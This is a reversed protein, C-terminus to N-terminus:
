LWTKLTMVAVRKKWKIRDGPVTVFSARLATMRGQRLQGVSQRSIDLRGAAIVNQTRSGVSPQITNEEAVAIVLVAIVAEQM